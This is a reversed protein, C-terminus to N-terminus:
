LELGLIALLKIKGGQGGAELAGTSRLSSKNNRKYNTRAKLKIIAKFLAM